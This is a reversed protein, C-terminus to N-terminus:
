PVDILDGVRNPQANFTALKAALGHDCRIIRWLKPFKGGHTKVIKELSQGTHGSIQQFCHNVIGMLHDLKHITTDQSRRTIGDLVRLTDIAEILSLKDPIMKVVDGYMRKRDNTNLFRKTKVDYTEGCVRAIDKIHAQYIDSPVPHKSFYPPEINTGMQYRGSTATKQGIIEAVDASKRAFNAIEKCAGKDTGTGYVSSICDAYKKQETIDGLMHKLPNTESALVALKEASLLPFFFSMMEATKKVYGIAAQYNNEVALFSTAAVTDNATVFKRLTDQVPGHQLTTLLKGVNCQEPLSYRIDGGKTHIDLAYDLRRPSVQGKVADPLENWWSIAARAMLQGYRNVFYEKEPKYPVTVTVHFRDAQAPDLKEVDYTDDGDPNIAAWIAKLKKFPKGNITRFQILEMVANRVKKHARNLEDFFLAEVEDLGQCRLLDLYPEGNGDQRERPIGVLDVWPDMTAASFYKWSLGNRNFADRVISTKGVGHAGIFLVNYGHQIWFDLNEDRVM